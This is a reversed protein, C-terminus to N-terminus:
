WRGNIWTKPNFLILIPFLELRGLIMELSLSLKSLTGFIAYNGSPGVLKFGPGVNSICAVSASFNTLLDYGDLSVILGVIFIIGMYIVFYALVANVTENPLAKNEFKIQKVKRPNVARSLNSASSKVLIIIRSIKLGGATSGACAGILMLFFLIARSFSPWLEYNYTTFGTTTIISSVQFFATRFNSEFNHYLPLTNLIIIITSFFVIGLYVRLEESKFFEKSRGILIFYFLSFNIGFIIMFIAIVYQCFANASAVSTNLISFGGTGATSFSLTIAEFIGMKGFLLFIFELITLGIYILYLIRASFRMKSVLKNVQPGPSEAKLLFVAAGQKSEPIIALVFVLVGMGGIWNTFSRWFLASKTTAEIDTLISAGTTTFGSATEFIADVFSPIDGSIVFPLAGFLTMLLWSLGVIVFAEKAQFNTSKNTKIRLLSGCIELAAIPVLFALYNQWGENEILAVFLPLIMLAGVIMLIKGILNRVAKYNM